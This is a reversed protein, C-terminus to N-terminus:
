RIGPIIARFLFQGVYGEAIAAGLICTAYESPRLACYNMESRAIEFIM